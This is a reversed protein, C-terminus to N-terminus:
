FLYYLIPYILDLYIVYGVPVDLDFSKLSSPGKNLDIVHLKQKVIDVFRLQHSTREWFPAEGLGCDIKLYPQLIVTLSEDQFVCRPLVCKLSRGNRSNMCQAQPLGQKAVCTTSTRLMFDFM